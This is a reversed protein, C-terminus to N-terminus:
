PIYNMSRSQSSVEENMEYKHVYKLIKKRHGIKAINCSTELIEEDLASLTDMSDFGNEILVDAYQPLRM